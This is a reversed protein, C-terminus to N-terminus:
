DPALALSEVNRCVDSLFICPNIRTKSLVVDYPVNDCVIAWIYGTGSHTVDTLPLVSVQSQVTYHHRLCLKRPRCLKLNRRIFGM